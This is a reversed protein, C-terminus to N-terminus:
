VISITRVTMIFVFTILLPVIGVVASRVWPDTNTRGHARLVEWIVLLAILAFILLLGLTDGPDSAATARKAVIV